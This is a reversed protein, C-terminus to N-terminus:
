GGRRAGRGRALNGLHSATNFGKPPGLNITQHQQQGNVATRNSGARGPGANSFSEGRAEMDRLSARLAADLDNASEAAAGASSSALTLSSPVVSGSRSRYSGHGSSGAGGIGGSNNGNLTLSTPNGLGSNFANVSASMVTPSSFLSGSASSHQSSHKHHTKLYSGSTGGNSNSFSQGTSHSGGNQGSAGGISGGAAPSAPGPHIFQSLAGPTSFGNLSTHKSLTSKVNSISGSSALWSSRQPIDGTPTSPMSISHALSRSASQQPQQPQQPQSQSQLQQLPPPQPGRHSSGQAPAPSQGDLKRQYEVLSQFLNAVEKVRAFQVCFSQLAHFYGAITIAGNRLMSQLFVCLMRVVRAQGVKDEILECCRIANEIYAHLFRSPLTTSGTLRNVVELSHLTLRKAHTMTDFYADVISPEPSGAGAKGSNGTINTDNLKAGASLADGGDLDASLQILYLLLNFAITPNNDVIGPLSEPPPLPIHVKSADTNFQSLMFQEQDFTLPQIASQEMIANLQQRNVTVENAKKPKSTKAPAPAADELDQFHKEAEIEWEELEDADGDGNGESPRHPQEETTTSGIESDVRSRVRTELVSQDSKSADGGTNHASGAHRLSDMLKLFERGHKRDSWRQQGLSEWSWGLAVQDEIPVEPLHQELFQLDVRKSEAEQAISILEAATSPALEDGDGSLIVSVVFREPRQQEDRLSTTYIDMFFCLFPNRYIPLRSYLNYLLYLSTIRVKVPESVDLDGRNSTPNTRREQLFARIQEQVSEVANLVDMLACGAKFQRNAAVTQGFEIGTQQLVHDLHSGLFAAIEKPPVTIM